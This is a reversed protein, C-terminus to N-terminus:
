TDSSHLPLQLSISKHEALASVPDSSGEYEHGRPPVKVGKAEQFCYLSRLM